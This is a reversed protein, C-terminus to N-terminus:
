RRNKEGEKLDGSRWSEIKRVLKSIDQSQVQGFWRLHNRKIKEEINAFGFGKRIDENQIRDRLTHWVFYGDGQM